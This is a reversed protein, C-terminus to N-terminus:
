EGNESEEPTEGGEASLLIEVLSILSQHLLVSTVNLEQGRVSGQLVVESLESPYTEWPKGKAMKRCRGYQNSRDECLDGGGLRM